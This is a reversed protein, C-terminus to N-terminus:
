SIADIWPQLSACIGNDILRERNSVPNWALDRKANTCDFVSKQTRSRWDFYSPFRRADPHAVAVKVLWKALDMLYFRWIPQFVIKFRQGSLRQLEQLYDRASLLPLDVLNYSRGDIGPVQISRVLAAAVDAVLVLPLKNKGDGWVQCTNGLGWMGVGWHFPNGGAGIVIGPRVIVIPLGQSQHMETL